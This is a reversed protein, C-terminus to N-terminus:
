APPIGLDPVGDAFGRFVETAQRRSTVQLKALVASVHSDVTRTSLVLRDAIEANTLGEAVLALVALQRDTLGSPNNRTRPVPGRPVATVGDDRLQRRLRQALGVAGLQDLLELARLRTPEDPAGALAQAEEYPRGLARWGEAGAHWDGAAQAAFPSDTQTRLLHLEEPSRPQGVAGLRYALEAQLRRNGLREAERHVAVGRATPPVTDTLYAAELAAAAAPGRRQLEDARDAVRWAEELKEFPSASATRAAILAEVVLTVGRSVYAHDPITAALEAARGWDCDAMAIRSRIATLHTEYIQHEAEVALALGDAVADDAAAMAYRTVLGWALNLYGRCAGEVDGISLALEISRRLEVEGGDGDSIVVLSAGVNNLAHSMARVDGAEAAYAAAREGQEIAATYEGHLMAVQSRNGLAIAQIEPDDIRAALSVAEDASEVTLEPLSAVWALRSLWCLSRVLAAEDGQRRRLHVANEAAAVGTSDGSLYQEVALEEWLDPRDEDSVLAEHELVTRFHAVAERHSGSAAAERAARPGVDVVTDLSGCAVAHHVLRGPDADGLALLADLVRRHFALQRAGPVSGIVAMRTLEHRFAVEANAVTLLGSEEAPVLLDWAGDVLVRALRPEVSGPVVALQEVLDRTVQPLRALREVAAGMVSRPTVTAPSALMETVLYPNGTTLRFVEDTDVEHGQCLVRVADPSLPPLALTTASTSAAGVLASLGSPAAEDDRFTVVLLAHLSALRRAAHRLVDLTGEDAWHLDEIVLVTTPGSDLAAVLASMVQERDGARVAARFATGLSGAVDKMPGLARPTSLADCYGTLVRAGAPVWAHFARVLSTKGVGAEGSVLVVSGRGQDAARAAAALVRMQESRELLRGGGSVVCDLM